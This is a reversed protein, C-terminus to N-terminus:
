NQKAVKPLDNSFHFAVGSERAGRSERDVHRGASRGSRALAVSRAARLTARQEAWRRNPRGNPRRSPGALGSFRMDAPQAKALGHECM